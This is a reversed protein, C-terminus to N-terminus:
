MVSCGCKPKPGRQSGALQEQRAAERQARMSSVQAELQRVQGELEKSRAAVEGHTRQEKRAAEEAALVQDRLARERQIAERAQEQLADVQGQLRGVERTQQLTHDDLRQSAQVATSKSALEAKVLRLEAKLADQSSDFRVRAMRALHLAERAARVAPRGPLGQDLAHMLAESRADSTGVEGEQTLWAEWASSAARLREDAIRVNAQEIAREEEAIGARLDSWYDEAVADEGLARARWEQRVARRAEKLTRQLVDDRVPLPEGGPGPLPGGERARRGAARVGELLSRQLAGCASHQAQEWASGIHLRGEANLAEVLRRLLAAFSVGSLPQGGM